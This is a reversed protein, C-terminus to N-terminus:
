SYRESGRDFLSCETSDSESRLQYTLDNLHSHRGCAFLNGTKLLTLYHL